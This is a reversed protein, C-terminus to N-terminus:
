APVKWKTVGIGESLLMGAFFPMMRQPMWSFMMCALLFGGFLGLIIGIRVGVTMRNMRLGGMLGASAIYFFMEYSLSWTVSMLPKIPFLGPLFLLNAVIYLVGDVLNSTIKESDPVLLHIIVYLGFSALFAPYLREARRAM